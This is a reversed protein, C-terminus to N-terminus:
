RDSRHKDKKKKRGSDVQEGFEPEFVEEKIEPPEKIEMELETREEEEEEEEERRERDKKKKRKKRETVEGSSGSTEFELVRSADIEEDKKKKKKKEKRTSQEGQSPVVKVRKDLAPSASLAEEESSRKRGASPPTSSGFPTFRQKLGAPIQPAPSAPIAKPGETGNCDGFREGVNMYGQILPGCLVSGKGKGQVLLHTNVLEKQSSFVNYIKRTAASGTEITEYGILPVKKGSFSRAIPMNSAPSPCRATARRRPHECGAIEFREPKFSAPAKILWLETNSGNLKELSLSRSTDYACSVFDVPCEFKTQTRTQPEAQPDGEIESDSQTKNNEEVESESDDESSSSSVDRLKQKASM